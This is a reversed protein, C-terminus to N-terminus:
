QSVELIDLEYTTPGWLVLADIDVILFFILCVLAVGM